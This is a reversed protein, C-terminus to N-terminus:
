FEMDPVPRALGLRLNGFPFTPQVKECIRSRKTQAVLQPVSTAAMITGSIIDRVPNFQPPAMITLEFYRSIHFIYKALLPAGSDLVESGISIFFLFSHLIFSIPSPACSILEDPTLHRM